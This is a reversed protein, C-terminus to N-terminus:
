EQHKSLAIAAADSLSKLGKLNLNGKHKSLSEAAADSLSTLGKLDLKGRHKCFSEAAADSLSRLGKLDLDGRHKSLSEAVADSLSALGGLFLYGQHKSLAKAAADSLSTVGRLVLDGKHKSLSEAAADSLSSLSDLHLRGKHKSLSEAAADSLSALGRVNLDGRHKSLSEAAADSLSRLGKLDLDGRHKSLSEAVADSLSALGKLLLNVKLKSLPEAATNSLNTLSDLNIYNEKILKFDYIKKLKSDNPIYNMINLMALIASQNEIGWINRIPKNLIKIIAKSPRPSGYTIECGYLLQKFLWDEEQASKLISNAQEWQEDAFMLLVKQVKAKREASSLTTAISKYKSKKTKAKKTIPTGLPAKAKPKVGVEVYGNRTKERILKEMEASAKETASFSNLKSKGATGIKGSSVHMIKGQVKVEWFKCSKADKYEFRRM